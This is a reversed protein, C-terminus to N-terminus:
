EASLSETLRESAHEMHQEMAAQAGAVDGAVIADHVAAHERLTTEIQGSKSVARTIWVQMLSRVGHLIGALASNDALEAVALHFAVDAEVFAEPDDAADRMAQMHGDLLAIGEPTIRSAALKSVVVELHQRAEILDLTQPRGLMLGWEIAQPLLDTSTSNFYTGSGQRIMVVGLLDLAALAERVASRGVQFQAALERESPLRDGAQLAGDSLYALVRKAVETVPSAQTIPSGLDLTDRRRRSGAPDITM